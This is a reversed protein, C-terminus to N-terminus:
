YDSHNTEHQSTEQPENEPSQEPQEEHQTITEVLAEGMKLSRGHELEALAPFTDQATLLIVTSGMNFRGIEEGKDFVPPQESYDWHQLISGYPPTIKGEFVTEMSGVFIAGVMILCFDGQESEFRMVLRENRAFLGPVLRVTAPNVAFLDGPVYTMSLLKGAIPMHVRHYDKPSLYIVAAQGNKFREAYHIDGGVLAHTTYDHCKAQILRHQEIKCSQSVIGDAPSVWTTEGEAIPRAEPKLARTFFDNFHRYHSLDQSAAEELDIKYLRTLLKITNDKIWPQQIHMFWHMANSLMHTPLLYQPVVKIYDLVSM